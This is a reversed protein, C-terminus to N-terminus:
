FTFFRDPARGFAQRSHNSIFESCCHVGPQKKSAGNLPRLGAKRKATSFSYRSTLFEAKGPKKHGEAPGGGIVLLKKHVPSDERPRFAAVRAMCSDLLPFFAWISNYKDSVCNFHHYFFNPCCKSFSAPM